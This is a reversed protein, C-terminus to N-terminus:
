SFSGRLSFSKLEYSFKEIKSVFVEKNETADADADIIGIFGSNTVSTANLGVIGGICVQGKESYATLNSKSLSSMIKGVFGDENDINQAVLGGTVINAIKGKTPM